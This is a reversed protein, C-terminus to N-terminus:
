GYNNKTTTFKNTKNKKIMAAVLVVIIKTIMTKVRKDATSSCIVLTTAALQCLGATRRSHSTLRYSSPPRRHCHEAPNNGVSQRM